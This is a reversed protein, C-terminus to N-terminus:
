THPPAFEIQLLFQIYKCVYGYMNVHMVMFHFPRRENTFKKILNSKLINTHYIM